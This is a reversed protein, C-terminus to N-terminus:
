YGTSRLSEKLKEFDKSTFANMIDTYVKPIKNDTIAMIVSAETVEKLIIFCIDSEYVITSLGLSSVSSRKLIEISKRYIKDLSIDISNREFNLYNLQYDKLQDYASFTSTILLGDPLSFLLYEALSKSKLESLNQKIKGLRQMSMTSKQLEFDLIEILRHQASGAKVSVPTFILKQKLNEDVEEMLVKYIVDAKSNPLDIKNLLVYVNAVESSYEFISQLFKNFMDKTNHNLETSDVMFIPTAVESFISARQEDSFYREMYREQGGADWINLLMVGRYMFNERSIGKTPKLNSVKMFDYGLCTMQMLSTKGANQPGFLLIKM